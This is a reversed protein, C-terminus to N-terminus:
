RNSFQARFIVQQHKSEGDFDRERIRNLAHALKSYVEEGHAPQQLFCTVLKTEGIDRIWCALSEYTTDNSNNLWWDFMDSLCDQTFNPSHEHNAQIENLKYLPVDLRLGLHKWEAAVPLKVLEMLRQRPVAMTRLNNIYQGLPPDVTFQGRELEM